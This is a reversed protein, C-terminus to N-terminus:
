QGEAAAAGDAANIHSADAKENDEKKDENESVDSTWLTLNDRLLQM